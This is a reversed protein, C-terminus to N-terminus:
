FVMIIGNWGRRKASIVLAVVMFALVGLVLIAGGMERLVDIYFALFKEWADLLEYTTGQAVNMTGGFGSLRLTALVCLQWVADTNPLDARPADLELTKSWTSALAGKSEDYMIDVAFAQDRDAGRPLPVLVQSGNQEPKVPLGNVYCGWLKTNRP